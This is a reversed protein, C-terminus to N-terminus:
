PNTGSCGHTCYWDSQLIISKYQMVEQLKFQVPGKPDCIVPNFAYCVGNGRACIAHKVLSTIESLNALEQANDIFFFIDKPQEQVVLVKIAEERTRDIAKM